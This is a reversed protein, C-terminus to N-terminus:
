EKESLIANKLKQTFGGEANEKAHQNISDISAELENNNVSIKDEKRIKNVYQWAYAMGLGCVYAGDRAGITQEEFVQANANFANLMMSLVRINAGQGTLIYRMSQSSQGAIPACAENIDAIWARIRPLCSAALEELTIEVRFKEKQEIYCIVDSASDEDSTFINELLRYCIADSLEYKRQLEETFFKYGQNLTTTNLLRGHQFLALTCHDQELDIQVIPRQPDSILAGTEQALAYADICVDLIQLNSQEICRAYAYMTEKDAYLLDVEMYFDDCEKGLPLKHTAEGNIYYTIQNVNVFVVEESLQKEIAKNFGQQIHFLRITKTGDSIQVHIKQSCRQVNVSPIALLVREIRFGLANQANKCAEQIAKVVAAEDVIKQNQVGSCHVREVRLVNNRAEFIELVILRIEQDAIEITAYVKKKPM